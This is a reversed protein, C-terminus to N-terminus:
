SETEKETSHPLGTTGTKIPRCHFTLSIICFTQCVLTTRYIFITLTKLRVKVTTKVKNSIYPLVYETQTNM